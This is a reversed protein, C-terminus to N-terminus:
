EIETSTCILSGNGGSNKVTYLAYDARHIHTDINQYKEFIVEAIGLSVTFTIEKNHSLHIVLQEIHKRIKEAIVQAGNSDTNPLFLVFEDGGWRSIIDSSRSYDKLIKSLTVIVNDGAKHGYSDNIDKFKDVDLIIISAKSDNRKLLTLLNETIEIFSRRNKLQTLPDTSALQELNKNSQNLLYHRYTLFLVILLAIFVIYIIIEWNINDSVKVTMIWKDYISDIETHDIQALTKDIISLLENPMSKSIAIKLKFVDDLKKAVELTNYKKEQIMYEATVSNIVFLDANGALVEKFGDSTKEVEIYRVEPYKSKVYNGLTSSKVLAITKSKIDQPLHNYNTNDNTRKILSPHYHFIDRSTFDMYEARHDDLPIASFMDVKQHEALYVAKEWSNTHIAEFKINSKKSILKLIDAIIGSHRNVENKWEFPAWDIDYVYTVPKHKNIWAQEELTFQIHKNTDSYLNFPSLIYICLIFIYRM